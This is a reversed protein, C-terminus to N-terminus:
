APRDRPQLSRKIEAEAEIWDQVEHGPAFGRSEAKQYAREQILRYVEEDSFRTAGDVSAPTTLGIEDTAARALDGARPKAKTTKQESTQPNDNRKM